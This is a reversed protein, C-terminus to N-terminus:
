AIQAANLANPFHELFANPTALSGIVRTGEANLLNLVLVDRSPDLVGRLCSTIEDISYSSNFVIFSTTESWRNFSLEVIAAVLNNYRTQYSGDKRISFTLFYKYM